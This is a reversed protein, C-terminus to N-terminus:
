KLSSLKHFYHPEIYIQSQGLGAKAYQNCPLMNQGAFNGKDKDVCKDYAKIRKSGTGSCNHAREQRRINPSM